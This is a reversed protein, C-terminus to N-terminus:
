KIHENKTINTILKILEQQGNVIIDMRETLASKVLQEKLPTEIYNKAILKTDYMNNSLILTINMTFFLMWFFGRDVFDASRDYSYPETKVIVGNVMRLITNEGNVNQLSVKCKKWECQCIENECDSWVMNEETIANYRIEVKPLIEILITKNIM